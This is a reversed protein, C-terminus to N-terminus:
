HAAQAAHAAAVTRRRRHEEMGAKAGQLAAKLDCYGSEARIWVAALASGLLEGLYASRQLQARRIHDEIAVFDEHKM